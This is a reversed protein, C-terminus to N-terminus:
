GFFDDEGETDFEIIDEAATVDNNVVPTTSRPGNNVANNIENTIMTQVNAPIPNPAVNVPQVVAQPQVVPQPQVVAQPQVVPQVAQPQPQAVPQVVPQPQVTATAGVAALAPQQAPLIEVKQEVPQAQAEGEEKGTLAKIASDYFLQLDKDPKSFLLHDAEANFLALYEQVKEMIQSNSRYNIIAEREGQPSGNAISPDSFPFFSFSKMTAQFGQKATGKIKVVTNCLNQLVSDYYEISEEDMEYDIVGLEKLKTGYAKLIDKKFSSSAMELYSFKLGEVSNLANLISVKFVPYIDRKEQLSNSLILIPIHIKSTRGSIIKDRYDSCRKKEKDALICCLSPVNNGDEDVGNCKITASYNNGNLGILQDGDKYPVVTHCPTEYLGNELGLFLVYCESDPKFDKVVRSFKYKEAFFERKTSVFSAMSTRKFVM